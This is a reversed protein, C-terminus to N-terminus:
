GRCITDISSVSPIKWISCARESKKFKMECFNNMYTGERRGKMNGDDDVILSLGRLRNRGGPFRRGM